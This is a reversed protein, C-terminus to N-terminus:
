VIWLKTSVICTAGVVRCNPTRIAHIVDWVIEVGGSSEVHSAGIIVVKIDQVYGTGWLGRRKAHDVIRTLCM